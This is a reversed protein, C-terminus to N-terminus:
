YFGSKKLWRSSPPTLIATIGPAQLALAGWLKAVVAQGLAGVPM